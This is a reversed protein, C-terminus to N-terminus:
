RDAKGLTWATESLRIEGSMLRPLLTDRLIALTTVEKMRAVIQNYLPGCLREYLGLLAEPPVLVSVTRFTKKSIEAFTSGGAIDRIYGINQECWYLVYLNPLRRECRMAIFGQNVATPIEAIALYGIPARSSLLVTGVPLTRSSIKRLGADTIKRTTDLLVPSSLKSLDKPTAWYLGGQDWYSPEKTSPTSGGVADVEDGIQAVEWGEPIKGMESDVLRDPFLGAIDEPLGPDQGKMKARVPDFDVFWSKFLARAMAELTENMRRNLEIKDDLTGLIHAIARQELLPPLPIGLTRLYTVPQAISPVGVQSTNALLQHQGQPSTLYLAVFEGIARARDCRIYFQSQSVIYRDFHSDEPIYSVQGITGRHTLVVDGRQVNANRLRHAHEATIFNFGPSDDVRIGHLHQGSIIPVGRPVFTSVKISSGFPGMAVKEALDEITVIPWERVPSTGGVVVVYEREIERQFREPLRAWDRAEVLIPITSERVAEEFDMLRELAIKKLGPGRLVLDLDSGEHGRGNVRSGYAWVETNPLHERLLTKLVRRHRPALNLRDPM